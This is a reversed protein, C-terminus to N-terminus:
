IDPSFRKQGDGAALLAQGELTMPWECADSMSQGNVPYVHQWWQATHAADDPPPTVKQFQPENMTQIFAGISFDLPFESIHYMQSDDVFESGPGSPRVEGHFTQDRPEMSPPIGRYLADPASGAWGSADEGVTTETRHAFGRPGSVDFSAPTTEEAPPPLLSAFKKLQKELYRAYMFPAHRGHGDESVDKSRLIGVLKRVLQAIDELDAPYLLVSMKPRLLSLLHAAAFTVFLFHAEMSYRLMGSPYLKYIMGKIVEKAAEICQRVLRNDRSVGAGEEGKKAAVARQLGYFLVVLRNFANIMRNTDARYRCMLDDSQPIMSFRHSWENHLEWLKLNYREVIELVEMVKKPRGPHEKEEIEFKEVEVRFHRMLYSIEVYSSLHVDISLSFPSSRYWERCTRAVYDEIDLMAPKGFQTSHSADVCYCNLWTRTRNLREREIMEVRLADKSDLGDPSLPYENDVMPPDNLKLEQALSFALGMTLWGRQDEFRKRPLQYVSQILYAQCEDLTKRGQVLTKGALDRAFEVFLPVMPAYKPSYKTAVCCILTFLFHSHWFLREPTHLIPDLVSFYPNVFRFYIIFLEGVDKPHIIGRAVIEPASTYMTVSSDPFYELLERVDFGEKPQSLFHNTPSPLYHANMDLVRDCSSTGLEGYGYSSTWSTADRGTDSSRSSQMSNRSDPSRSSSACAYHAKDIWSKVRSANTLEDFQRLLAAIEIDQKHSKLLLEEHTAVARRKKRGNVVCQLKNLICRQCSNQGAGLHCKVKLGKCHTCAGRKTPQVSVSSKRAGRRRYTDDESSENESETDVRSPKPPQYYRFSMSTPASTPPNSTPTVPPPSLM